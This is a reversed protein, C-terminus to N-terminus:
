RQPWRNKDALAMARVLADLLERARFPKKLVQLNNQAALDLADLSGSIMVLPLGLAKAHAALTTGSEGPMLADLIVADVSDSGQLFERMSAGDVAWSVRYGYGRLIEVIVDRVDDNDDVVLIHETASM